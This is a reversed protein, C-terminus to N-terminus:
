FVTAFSSIKDNAAGIKDNAIRAFIRRLYGTCDSNDYVLYDRPTKNVIGTIKNNAVETLVICQAEIPPFEYLLNKFGKDKYFCLAGESCPAQSIPVPDAQAPPSSTVVSNNDVHNPLGGTIGLASVTLSLAVIPKVIM